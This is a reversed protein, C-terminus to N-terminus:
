KNQTGNDRPPGRSAQTHLWSPGCSSHMGKKIRNPSVPPLPTRAPQDSNGKCIHRNPPRFCVTSHQNTPTTSLPCATHSNTSGSLCHERGKGEIHGSLIRRWTPDMVSSSLQGAVSRQPDRPSLRFRLFRRISTFRIHPFAPISSKRIPDFSGMETIMQDGLGTSYVSYYISLVRRV